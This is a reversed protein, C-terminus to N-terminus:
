GATEVTALADGAGAGRRPLRVGTALLLGLMVLATGAFAYGERVSGVLATLPKVLDNALLLGMILDNAVFSGAALLYPWGHRRDRVFFVLGVALTVIKGATGATRFRYFTEPGTIVFPPVFSILTFFTAIGFFLITTSMLFSGHLTRRKRLVFALAILAGLVVTTMVNQVLLFDGEGSAAGKAASHVSLLAGSAVLVPGLALIATGVRAHTAYSRSGVLGLQYRLLALWAVVTALHLHHHWQPAARAGLYINWFGSVTLLMTAVILGHEFAYRKVRTM